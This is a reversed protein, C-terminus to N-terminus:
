IYVSGPHTPHMAMNVVYTGVRGLLSMVLAGVLATGFGQVELRSTLADTIKLLIANVFWHLLFSLLFGLGLTAIGIFLYLLKGLFFNLVGFIAAVVIADWLGSLRIGPVVKATILFAVSLVLWNLLFALVADVM